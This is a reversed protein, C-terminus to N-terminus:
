VKLLTCEVVSRVGDAPAASEATMALPASTDPTEPASPATLPQLHRLRLGAPWSAEDPDTDPDTDMQALTLIEANMPSASHPRSLEPLILIDAGYTTEHHAEHNTEFLAPDSGAVDYGAVAYGTVAYGAAPVVNTKGALLEDLAQLALALALSLAPAPASALSLALSPAFAM